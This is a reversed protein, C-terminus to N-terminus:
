VIKDLESNIHKYMGQKTFGYEDAVVEANRHLHFLDDMMKRDRVEMRDVKEAQKLSLLMFDLNTNLEDKKEILGLRKQDSFDKSVSSPMPKGSKMQEPSLDMGHHALGSLEVEIEEVKRKARDIERILDYKHRYGEIVMKTLAKPM